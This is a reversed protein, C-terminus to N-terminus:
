SKQSFICNQSNNATKEGARSLLRRIQAYHWVALQLLVVCWCSFHSVLPQRFSNLPGVYSLPIVWDWTIPTCYLTKVGFCLEEPSRAPQLCLCPLCVSLLVSVINSVNVIIKLIKYIKKWWEKQLMRMVSLSYITLMLRDETTETKLASSLTWSVSVIGTM